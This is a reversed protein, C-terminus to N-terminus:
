YCVPEIFIQGLVKCIQFNNGPTNRNWIAEYKEFNSFRFDIPRIKVRCYVVTPFCFHFSQALVVSLDSAVTYMDGRKKEIFSYKNKLKPDTKLAFKSRSLHSPGNTTARVVRRSPTRSVRWASSTDQVWPQTRNPWIDHGGASETRGIRHLYDNFCSLFFGKRM